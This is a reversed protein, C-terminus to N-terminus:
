WSDKKKSFFIKTFSRSHFEYKTHAKELRINYNTKNVSIIRAIKHSDDVEYDTKNKWNSIGPIEM